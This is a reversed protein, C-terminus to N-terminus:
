LFMGLIGLGTQAASGMGSLPSNAGGGFLQMASSWPNLNQQTQSNFTGNSQTQGGLGAIPLVMQEPTGINSFPLGYATNAAGLQAQGPALALGPQGSAAGLGFGANQLYSQNAMNAANFINQNAGTMNSVNQNYQGTLIPALGGAEGYGLAQSNAPSLDRGAGAFQGNVQNAIQNQLYQLSTAMGPTNMPNLSAPNAIGSLNNTLAGTANQVGTNAAGSLYNAAINAGQAGFNPLGSAASQLNAVGAQQGPTVGTGQSSLQGLISQLLPQSPAWPNSVTNQSTQGTQSGSSGGM